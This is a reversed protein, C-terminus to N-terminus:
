HSIHLTVSLSTFSLAMRAPSRYYIIDRSNACADEDPITMALEHETFPLNYGCRDSVKQFNLRIRYDALPTSQTLEPAHHCVDVFPHSRQLVALLTQTTAFDRLPNKCMHYQLAETHGYIYM